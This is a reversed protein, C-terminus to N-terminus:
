ELDLHTSMNILFSRSWRSVAIGFSTSLVLLAAEWSPAPTGGVGPATLALAAAVGAELVLKLNFSPPPADCGGVGTVSVGAFFPLLVAPSLPLAAALTPPAVAPLLFRAAFSSM